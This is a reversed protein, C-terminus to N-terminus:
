DIYETRQHLVFYFFFALARSFSLPPEKRRHQEYQYSHGQNGAWSYLVNPQWSYSVYSVSVAEKGQKKM